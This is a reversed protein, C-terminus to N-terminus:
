SADADRIWEVIESPCLGSRVPADKTTGSRILDFLGERGVLTVDAPKAHACGKGCGSVHLDRGKPLFPALARALNRTQVSASVCGPDGTCAAIRLLPDDPDAILNPHPPFAIVGEIILSRWPTLRLPAIALARLTDTAIQGFPAALCLGTETFGPVPPPVIIPTETANLPPERGESVLQAMRTAVLRNAAFWQVLDLIRPIATAPTVAEGRAIGEARLILGNPGPEIRLDASAAGLVAGGACDVAIGFKAPLDPFDPLRAELETVLPQVADGQRWLPTVLINRRTELAPDADILGAERLGDQLAALDSVAVGRLQVNARNSLEVQGGAFRDALDAIALAEAVTVRSGHPRIRLILGDGAPMPRLAGPCWGKVEGSMEAGGRHQELPEAM